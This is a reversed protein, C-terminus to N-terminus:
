KIYHSIRPPHRHTITTVARTKRVGADRILKGALVPLHQAEDIALMLVAVDELGKRRGFFRLLYRLIYPPEKRLVLPSASSFPSKVDRL